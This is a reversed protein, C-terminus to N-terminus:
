DRFRLISGHGEGALLGEVAEGGVVEDAHAHLGVREPAAKMGFADDGIGDVAGKIEVGGGGRAEVGDVGAGLPADGHASSTEDDVCAGRLVCGEVM